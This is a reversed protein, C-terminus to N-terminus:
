GLSVTAGSVSVSTGGSVTATTSGKLTATTSGEVSVSTAAKLSVSSSSIALKSSSVSANVASTGKIEVTKASLTLTNSSGASITMDGTSTISVSKGKDDLTITHGGQSKVEIKKNTDDFLIQHGEKTKIEITKNTDNFNAVHGYNTTLYAGICSNDKDEEVFQFKHGVRTQLTRLRVKGKAVSSTVEEPPKDTGNWLGGLVIPRHIDGHEFAVLVEDGVEPLCDFGRSSGAGVGVVRAWWSTHADSGSEPTLTPFWVKVRHLKDTEDNNDTVKGILLTQGIKLRNPPSLISLLDGGRLGRVSFETTYTGRDYIQRTETIYYEGTYSGMNTLKVIKGPRIDPNGTATADAVVFDGSLEDVLAQAITDAETSSYIPKDVVIMKPSTPKDFLTSSSMGKGYKTSTLVNSQSSKTSSIEKKTTYDWGRVEVEKVQEASSVRGRFSSLDTLWELELTASSSPKRFFLKEDQVFLEYGNRAARERLFEMYTQNEQFVYDHTPSTTDITGTSIGVISAIKKVIDSDTMDQYSAIIRGRHLRHAVDYGRVIIPAEAQSTFHTELGTIEGKMLTGTAEDSFDESETTSATFSIEVATGMSFSSENEGFTDDSNGGYKPNSVVITFMSPAHLSEEVSAYIIDEKLDDSIASGGVKITLKPTYSATAM